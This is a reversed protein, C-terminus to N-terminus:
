LISVSYQAWGTGGREDRLVVWLTIAGQGAPATWVNDSSVNTDSGDRGTRDVDFTGGTAYWAVSIAERRDVLKSTAPDLAVYREAGSCGLPTMCDSPCKVISSDCNSCALATEDPGCIGDGCVDATPCVPWAVELEVRTGPAVTNSGADSTVWPMGGKPGLSVVAPNANVHYRQAYSASVDAGANALSCSLRMEGVAIVNGTAGAARVRIPQYYGGTPDPDVPRGPPQNPQPQPVDPGFQQCADGPITGVVSDGGGIPVFWAGSPELCLPSVPELEALPKREDCFAWDVAGNGIAGSPGVYLATLRTTKGPAAEAPQAQVAVIQPSTIISVTDNLNPKCAAVAGVLVVSAVALVAVSRGIVV